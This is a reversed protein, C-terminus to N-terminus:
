PRHTGSQFEHAHGAPVKGFETGLAEVARQRGGFGQTMTKVAEHAVDAARQWLLKFIQAEKGAAAPLM